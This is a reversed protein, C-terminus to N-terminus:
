FEPYIAENVELFMQQRNGRDWFAGSDEEGPLIRKRKLCDAVITFKNATNGESRTSHLLNRLQAVVDM